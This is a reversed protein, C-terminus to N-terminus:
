VAFVLCFWINAERRMAKWGYVSVPKSDALSWQSARSSVLEKINQGWWCNGSNNLLSESTNMCVSIFAIVQLVCSPMLTQTNLLLAGHHVTVKKIPNVNYDPYVLFQSSSAVLINLGAFYVYAPLFIKFYIYIDVLCLQGWEHYKHYSWTCKSHKDFTSFDLLVLIVQTASSIERLDQDSFVCPEVPQPKM